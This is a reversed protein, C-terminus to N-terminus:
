EASIALDVQGTYAGPPLSQPNPLGFAVACSLMGSRQWGAILDSTSGSALTGSTCSAVQGGGTAQARKGTWHVTPSPVAGLPGILGRLNATLRIHQGPVARVWAAVVENQSVIDSASDGSIRFRLSVQSPMIHAEPTVRVVLTINGDRQAGVQMWCALLLIAVLLSRKVLPKM